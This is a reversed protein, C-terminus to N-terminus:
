ATAAIATASTRDLEDNSEVSPRLNVARDVCVAVDAPQQIGYWFVIWDPARHVGEAQQIYWSNVPNDPRARWFLRPMDRRVRNWLSSGLGAGQAEVTVAFKDLYPMGAETTIIAAASYEHAIYIKEVSRNFFYDPHLRGGFGCELLARLRETDVDEFRDYADIPEGRRVLTGIGRHTFLERAVHEPKTISVSSSSPLKDLLKKIERLKLAMGGAVWPEALLRDYDEILNIAPIIRGQEDLLGGTPTLFIVKYPRVALALSSAAIDANVNLIQGSETEGLCAVIPLQGARIAADIPALHVHDIKGVLGLRDPDVPTSEFVGSTIPRARTERSELAEVLKFNEEQLVRRAVNLVQPSTVRLGDVSETEISAARLAEDLQPGAGHVVIPSLGIRQLFALSSALEDRADRLIGGGVKIVAFKASDVGTFTRLYQDIEKRSAFSSLLCTLIDQLSDMM